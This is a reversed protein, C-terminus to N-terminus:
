LGSQIWFWREGNCLLWEKKGDKDSTRNVRWARWLTWAIQIFGDHKAPLVSDRLHAKGIPPLAMHM